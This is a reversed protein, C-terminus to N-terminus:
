LSRSSPGAAVEVDKKEHRFTQYFDYAHEPKMSEHVVKGVAQIMAAPAESQFVNRGMDVGAAGQSVANYAMQLADLEPMKKGGAMVVPVPCSATVTEFGESVYYTKVVQAGLEACIRCALRLYRADRTLTKGVATVGLTPIGYRNGADVLRTLNHISQTEFEGGVFVQVAMANVNLRVCDEIDVAIQENSLEKLISPGGSARLVVGGTFAPPITSRLIGRTLMLANAYPLLPVITLDIRELGTTPGQFYGHDLALMVTRGSAPNFIRALRNQMGWDLAASGKLFFAERKPSIEPYFNKAELKGETDPM